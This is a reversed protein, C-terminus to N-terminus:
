TNPDFPQPAEASIEAGEAETEAAEWTAVLQELQPQERLGAAPALPFLRPAWMSLLCLLLLIVIGRREARTYQWFNKM